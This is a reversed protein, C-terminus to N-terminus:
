RCAICVAGGLKGGVTICGCGATSGDQREVKGDCNRDFGGCANAVSAYSTVGPHTAADSDCCDGGVTVYGAAPARECRTVKDHGYGDGDGDRYSTICSGGLCDADSTCAEGDKVKCAPPAGAPATCVSSGTCTVDASKDDAGDLPLCTGASGAQNCSFCTGSCAQNCCVGDVCHLSTCQADDDCPTGNKFRCAGLGDCTKEDACGSDADDTFKPVITCTGEAGPRACSQCAGCAASGCCVGDVCSGSACESSRACTQGLVKRCAGTADCTTGGACTDDTANKVPSCTGVKGTQACSQCAGDCATDCCVGDVCFGSACQAGVTCTQNAPPPTVAADAASAGGNQQQPARGAAGGAAPMAV